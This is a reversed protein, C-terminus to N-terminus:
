ACIGAYCKQPPTCDQSKCCQLCLGSCDKTGYGCTCTGASCVQLFACKNGCGGCNNQDSSLDVCSGGCATLTYCTAKCVGGSCTATGGIPDACTTTCSGCHWRDNLLDFCSNGCATYGSSCLVSCQGGACKPSGNGNAPAPCNTCASGCHTPDQTVDYCQGTGCSAFGTNCAFSCSGSVCTPQANAPASCAVGCGSCNAPDSLTAIECGNAPNKDCDAYGSGCAGATCTGAVCNPAANALACSQGCASCNASDNNLDVECGNDANGDCNGYGPNCIIGCVGNSCGPVGNTGNCVKGCGGCSSPDTSASSECGNADNGDCNAWGPDCSVVVCRAIPSTQGTPACGATAHPLNCVNTCYSCNAPDQTLDIECGNSPNGDCDATTPPNCTNVVCQGAACLYNAGLSTLCDTSCSGCHSPDKDQNTECGDSADTNCDAWGTNCADVACAGSSCKAQAHAVVCPTCSTSKKCGTTPSDSDLCVLAGTSDPCVKSGPFCTGNDIGIGGTGSDVGGDRAGSLGGTVDIGCGGSLALGALASFAALHAVAIRRCIM